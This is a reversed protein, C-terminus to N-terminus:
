RWSQGAIRNDQHRSIKGTQILQIFKMALHEFDIGDDGTNLSYQGFSDSIRRVPPTHDLSYIFIHLVLDSIHGKFFTLRAVTRIRRGLHEALM